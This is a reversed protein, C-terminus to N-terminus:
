TINLVGPWSCPQFVSSQSASIAQVVIEICQDTNHGVYNVYYLYKYLQNYNVFFSVYIQNTNSTFDFSLFYIHQKACCDM